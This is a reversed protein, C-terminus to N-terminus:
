SHTPAYNCSTLVTKETDEFIERAEEKDCREEICEREKDGQKFEELFSNARRQRNLLQSAARRDLFAPSLFSVHPLSSTFISQDILETVIDVNAKNRISGRELLLVSAPCCSFITPAM